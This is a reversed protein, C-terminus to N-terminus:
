ATKLTLRANIALEASLEVGKGEFDRTEFCGPVGFNVFSLCNNSNGDFYIQDEVETRFLTARLFGGGALRKELGIDYSMSSEPEFGPDGFSPDLEILAPARFGDAASARLILDEEIRSALAARSSLESSFESHDDSRLSLAIDLAEIPAILLEAQVGTIDVKQALDEEEEHDAGFNLTWIGGPDYSGRYAIRRREGKFRRGGFDDSTQRDTDFSSLAIGHSVAGTELEAFARLGVSERDTEENFPPPGDGAAAGQDFEVTSNIYLASLGAAFSDTIQHRAYLNAQTADYGDDETGAASASFGDSETRSISFALDTRETRATLGLAGRRFGYRGAGAEAFGHVGDETPRLREITIVGGIANQGFRASQSGKLIEVRGIGAHTLGGFDFGGGTGAPDTVNIGDILVPVYGGGLGRIRVNSATGLPGNASTSVGPEFALRDSLRTTPADRVEEESLVAVTAGSRELATETQNAIVTITDLELVDQALVPTPALACLACITLYRM